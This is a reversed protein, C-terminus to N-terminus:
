QREPRRGFLDDRSRRDRRAEEELRFWRGADGVPTVLEDPRNRYEVDRGIARGGATPPERGDLTLKIADTM